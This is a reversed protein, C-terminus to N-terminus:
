HGRVLSLVVGVGGTILASLAIKFAWVLFGGEFMSPKAPAMEPAAVAPESVPGGGPAAAVVKPRRPRLLVFVLGTVLFFIIIIHWISLAGM